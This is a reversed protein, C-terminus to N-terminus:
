VSPEIKVVAVSLQITGTYSTASTNNFFVTVTDAATVAGTVIVDTEFAGTPNALYGLMVMDGLAAGTVTVTKKTVTSASYTDVAITEAKYLTKSFQGNLGGEAFKLSSCLVEGAFKSDGSVELSGGVAFTPGSITPTINIGVKNLTADVHLLALTSSGYVRFVAPNSSFGSNLNLSVINSLTTTVPGSPTIKRNSPVTQGPNIEAIMLSVNVSTTSNVALIKYVGAGEIYVFQGVAIWSANVVSVLVSNGAAPFVAPQVFSATSSTFANVGNTGVTGNEGNFGQPGQAGAEGVVIADCECSM